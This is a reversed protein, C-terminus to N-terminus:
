LEQLIKIDSQQRRGTVWRSFTQEKKVQLLQRALNDKAKQFEEESAPERAQLQIIIFTDNVEYVEPAVPQEPTLAFATIILDRQNGLPQAPSIATFLGTKKIELKNRRAVEALTGEKRSTAFWEEAKKSAIGRSQVARWDQRVKEQVETFEQLRSDEIGALQAVLQDAGVSLVPSFEQPQLSFIVENIELYPGLQPIPESAAVFGSEKVELGQDAAVKLLDDLARSADIFTEARQRAIESAGEEKFSQLVAEKVEALPQLSEDEIDEVKIIHLGFRTRVLDSIEGKKLSFASDAFPKVMDERKFYGLDGGKSATSDESYKRALGAFDDGKRALAFVKRAEALVKQIESTQAKESIRFLIHRARVKKPQKYDDQHLRYFEEIETDTPDVENLYDRPVFRVYVFNRKAAIRYNERHEDFYAKIAGEDVKVEAAFEKPKIEVYDL